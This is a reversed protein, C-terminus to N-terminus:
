SEDDGFTFDSAPTGIRIEVGPIEQGEVGAANHKENVGSTAELKSLFEEPADPGYFGEKSENYNTGLSDREPKAQSDHPDAFIDDFEADYKGAGTVQQEASPRIDNEIEASTQEGVFRIMLIVLTPNKLSQITSIGNVKTSFSVSMMM